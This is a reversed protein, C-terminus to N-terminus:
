YLLWGGNVEEVFSDALGVISAPMKVTWDVDDAKISSYGAVEAAQAVIQSDTLYDVMSNLYDIVFQDSLTATPLSSDYVGPNLQRDRDQTRYTGAKPARRECAEKFPATAQREFFRGVTRFTQWRDRKAEIGVEIGVKTSTKSKPM